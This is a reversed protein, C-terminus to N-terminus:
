RVSRRGCAGDARGAALPFKWPRQQPNSRQGGPRRPCSRHGGHGRLPASAPRRPARGRIRGDPGRDIERGGRTRGTRDAFLSPHGKREEWLSVEHLCAPLGEFVVPDAGTIAKIETDGDPFSVIKVSAGAGDGTLDHLVEMSAGAALSIEVVKTAPQVRFERSELGARSASLVLPRRARPLVLPLEWEAQVETSPPPAISEGPSASNLALHLPGRHRLPVSSSWKVTAGVELAARLCFAAGSGADLAELEEVRLGLGEIALLSFPEKGTPAVPLHLIGRLDDGLEVELKQHPPDAEAWQLTLTTPGGSLWESSVVEVLVRVDGAAPADDVEPGEDQPEVLGAGEETPASEASERGRGEPQVLLTETEPQGESAGPNPAVPGAPMSGLVAPPGVWAWRAVAAALLLLGVVWLARGNMRTGM